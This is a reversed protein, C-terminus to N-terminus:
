ASPPHTKRGASSSLMSREAEVAVENAQAPVFAKGVTAANQARPVQEFRM